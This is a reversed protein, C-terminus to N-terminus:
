KGAVPWADVPADDDTCPDATCPAADPDAGPTRVAGGTRHWSGSSPAGVFRGFYFARSSFATVSSHCTARATLWEM